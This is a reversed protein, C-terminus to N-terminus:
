SHRLVFVFFCSDFHRPLGVKQALTHYTKGTVSPSTLVLCSAEIIDGPSYKVDRGAVETKALYTEGDENFSKSRLRGSVIFQSEVSTSNELWSSTFM